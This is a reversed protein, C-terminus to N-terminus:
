NNVFNIKISGIGGEVSVNNEGTGYSTDDEFDKGDITSSGLGRNLHINYDSSTGVLNLNMEGIGTNVKSTGLIRATITTKGIGMDLDLNNLTSKSITMEGAGGNIKSSNYVVLNEISTAGAGLDLELKNAILTKIDVKGAGTEIDAENFTLYSPVYIVLDGSETKFISNDDQTIYLKNNEESAKIYKNNTLVKFTDGEEITIKVSAVDIDLSSINSSVNLDKLDELTDKDSNTFVSGFLMLVNIIGFIISVALFLAFAMACYKIVKQASSM